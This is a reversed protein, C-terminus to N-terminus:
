VGGPVRLGELPGTWRHTARVKGVDLSLGAERCSRGWGCGGEESHTQDWWSHWLSCVSGGRPLLGQLVPEPQLPACRGAGVGRRTHPAGGSWRLAAGWAGREGVRPRLLQGVGVGRGGAAADEGSDGIVRREESRLRAYVPCGPKGACTWM